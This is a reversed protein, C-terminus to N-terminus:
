WRAPPTSRTCARARPRQRARQPRRRPRLVGRDGGRAGRDRLRRLGRRPRAAARGRAQQPRDGQARVGARRLARARARGDPRRPRRRRLLRAARRAAAKGSRCRRCHLACLQLRGAIVAGTRAQHETSTPMAHGLLMEVAQGRGVGGEQVLFARGRVHVDAAHEEELARRRGEVVVEVVDAPAQMQHRAVALLEGGRRQLGAARQPDVVRAEVELVVDAVGRQGRGPLSSCSSGSAARIAEWCSSRELGSHSLQSTSPSSSSRKASIKLVWWASTSPTEPTSRAVTRNSRSRRAAAGGAARGALGPLRLGSGEAASSTAPRRRPAGHARGGPESARASAAAAM